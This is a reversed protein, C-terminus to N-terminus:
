LTIKSSGTYLFYLFHEVVAPEFEKHLFIRSKGSEKLNCLLGNLVPSRASLVMQHAEMLKNQGVFIDVDTYRCGLAAEWLQTTWSVDMMEYCYNAITSVMKVDFVISQQFVQEFNIDVQAVFFLMESKELQQRANKPKMEIWNSCNISYLVQNVFKRHNVCIFHVIGDKLHLSFLNENQYDIALPKEASKRGEFIWVM